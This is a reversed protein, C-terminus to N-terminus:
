QFVTKHINESHNVSHMQTESRHTRMHVEGDAQCRSKLSMILVHARSCFLRCMLMSIWKSVFLPMAKSMFATHTACLAASLCTLTPQMIHYKPNWGSM